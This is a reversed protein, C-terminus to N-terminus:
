YRYIKYDRNLASYHTKRLEYPSIGRHTRTRDCARLVIYEGPLKIDIRFLNGTANESFLSKAPILLEVNCNVRINNHAKKDNYFKDSIYKAADLTSIKKEYCHQMLEKHTEKIVHEESIINGFLWNCVHEIYIEVTDEISLEITLYKALDFSTVVNNM